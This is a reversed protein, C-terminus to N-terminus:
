RRCTSSSSRAATTRSRVNVRNVAVEFEKAQKAQEATTTAAPPRRVAGHGQSLPLYKQAGKGLADQVLAVKNGDDAYQSLAKAVDFAIDGTDRFVGNADKASVGLFHARPQRAPRGRQRVEPGEGHAGAPRHLGRLRRRRDQRDGLAEVPERRERRDRGLLRGAGRRVQHRRPLAQGHRRRRGGRRGRAHADKVTDVSSRLEDVSGKVKKIVAEGPRGGDARAPIRAQRRGHNLGEELGPLAGRARLEGRLHRAGRRSSTASRASPSPARWAPRSCCRSRSGRRRIGRSSTPAAAARSRQRFARALMEPTVPEGSVTELRWPLRSFRVGWRGLARMGFNGYLQIRGPSFVLAARPEDQRAREIKIRAKLTGIKIGPYEDQMARASEARATTMTRNLARVAAKSQEEAM